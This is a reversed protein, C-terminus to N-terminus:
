QVFLNNPLLQPTIMSPLALWTKNQHNYILLLDASTYLSLKLASESSALDIYVNFPNVGALVPAEILISGESQQWAYMMQELAQESLKSPESRWTKGQREIKVVDEIMLALIVENSAVPTVQVTASDSASDLSEESTLNIVLIMTLVSYIIVNNWASKSLKM